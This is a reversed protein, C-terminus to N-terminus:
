FSDEMSSYRLLTQTLCHQYFLLFAGKFYIANLLILQTLGDVDDELLLDRIHNGTNQQINANIQLHHSSSSSVIIRTEM